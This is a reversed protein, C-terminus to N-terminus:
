TGTQIKQCSELITLYKRIDLPGVDYESPLLFQILGQGELKLNLKLFLLPILEYNCKIVKAIKHIAGPKVIRVGLEKDYDFIVGRAYIKDLYIELRRVANEVIEGIVGKNFVEDLEKLLLAEPRKKLEKDQFCLPLRLPERAWLFDTCLFMGILIFILTISTIKQVPRM